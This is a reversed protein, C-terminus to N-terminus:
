RTLVVTHFQEIWGQEGDPLGVRVWGDRTELAQVETGAHLKFRVVSGTDLESHADVEPPVVVAVRQPRLWHTLLSGGTLMAVLLAAGILWRLSEAALRPRFLRLSLLGWLALNVVVFVQVLEPRSLAFHWFFLTRMAPTPQPPTLADRTSNRAFQLNAAVDENRPLLRQSRLYSAIALGLQGNRLYANGLNYHLLGNDVGGSRVQEYLSVAQAFRGEEYAGNARILVAALESRDARSETALVDDAGQGGEVAQGLLLQCSSLSLLLVLAPRRPSVIRAHGIM